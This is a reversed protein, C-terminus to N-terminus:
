VCPKTLFNRSLEVPQHAMSFSSHLWVLFINCSSSRFLFLCFRLTLGVAGRQVGVIVDYYTSSMKKTVNTHNEGEDGDFLSAVCIIGEDRLRVPVHDAVGGCPVHVVNGFVIVADFHIRVDRKVILVILKICMEETQLHM